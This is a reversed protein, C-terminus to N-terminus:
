QTFGSAIHFASNSIIETFGLAFHRVAAELGYRVKLELVGIQRIQASTRTSRTEM